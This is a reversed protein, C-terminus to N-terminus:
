LLLNLFVYFSKVIQKIICGAPSSGARGLVGTELVPTDASNWWLHKICWM